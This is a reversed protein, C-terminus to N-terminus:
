PRTPTCTHRDADDREYWELQCADCRWVVPVPDVICCTYADHHLVWSRDCTGCHWQEVRDIM